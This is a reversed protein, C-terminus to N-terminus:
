LKHSGVCLTVPEDITYVTADVLANSTTKTLAKRYASIDTLGGRFSNLMM